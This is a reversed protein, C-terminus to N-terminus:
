AKAKERFQATNSAAFPRRQGTLAEPALQNGYREKLKAFAELMAANNRVASLKRGLDRHFINEQQFTDGLQGRM